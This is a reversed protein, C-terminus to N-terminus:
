IATIYQKAHVYLENYEGLNKIGFDKWIRKAYGCDADTPQQLFNKKLYYNMMLKKGIMWINM